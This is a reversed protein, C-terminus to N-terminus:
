CNGKNIILINAPSTIRVRINARSVTKSKVGDRGSLENYLDATSFMKLIM